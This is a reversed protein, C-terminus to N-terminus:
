RESRESVQKFDARGSSDFNKLLQLVEPPIEFGMTFLRDQFDRATIEGDDMKRVLSFIQQRLMKKECNFGFQSPQGTGEQMHAKTTTVMTSGAGYDMVGTIGSSDSFFKGKRSGTGRESIATKETTTGSASLVSQHKIPNTRKRSGFEGGSNKTFTGSGSPAVSM